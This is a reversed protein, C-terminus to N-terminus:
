LKSKDYSHGREGSKKLQVLYETSFNKSFNELDVTKMGSVRFYEMMNEFDEKGLTPDIKKLAMEIDRPTILGDGDTDYSSLMQYFDINDREIRKAIKIVWQQVEKVESIIFKDLYRRNGNYSSSRKKRMGSFKKMRKKEEEEEKIAQLIKEQQEKWLPEAAKLREDLDDVPESFFHRKNNHSAKPPARKTFYFHLYFQENAECETNVTTGDLYKGCFSCVITYKKLELAYRDSLKVWEAIDNKSKENETMILKREKEKKESILNWITENRIDLEKKIKNYDAIKRHREALDNPFNEIMSLDVNSKLPKDIIKEISRLIQKYRLLFGLIDPSETGSIDNVYNIIDLIANYQNQLQSSEYSLVALRKGEVSKVKENIAAFQTRIDREIKKKSYKIKSIMEEILNNSYNLETMKNMLSPKFKVLQTHKKQFSENISSIRHLKTNHPGVVQCEYCIPENCSECYYDLINNHHYCLKKLRLIESIPVRQHDRLAPIIHIQGDCLSCLLKNCDKCFCVAEGEFCGECKEIPGAVGQAIPNNNNPYFQNKSLGLNNPTENDKQSTIDSKTGERSPEEGIASSSEAKSITKTSKKVLKKRSSSKESKETEKTKTKSKPEKSKGKADKEKSKSKPKM